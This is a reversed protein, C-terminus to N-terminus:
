FPVEEDAEGAKKDGGTTGSGGRKIDEALNVLEKRSRPKLSKSFDFADLTFKDLYDQKAGNEQLHKKIIPLLEALSVDKVFNMEDGTAPTQDKDDRVLTWQTGILSGKKEKHRKIKGALKDKAALVKKTYKHVHGQKDTWESLDLITLLGIYYKNCRVDKGLNDLPCPPDIGSM